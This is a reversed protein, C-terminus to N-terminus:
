KLLALLSEKQDEPISLIQFAEHVDIGKDQIMKIQEVIEKAREPIYNIEREIKKYILSSKCIFIPYITKQYPSIQTSLGACIKPRKDSDMNDKYSYFLLPSIFLSDSEETNEVNKSLAIREQQSLENGSMVNIMRLNQYTYDGDRSDEMRQIQQIESPSLGRREFHGNWCDMRIKIGKRAVAEEVKIYPFRTRKAIKLPSKTNNSTPLFYQIAAFAVDFLLDEKIKSEDFYDEILVRIIYLFLILNTKMTALSSYVSIAPPDVSNYQYKANLIDPVGAYSDFWKPAVYSSDGERFRERLNWGALIAEKRREFEEQSPCFNGLHGMYNTIAGSLTYVNNGTRDDGEGYTYVARTRRYRTNKSSVVEAKVNTVYLSSNPSSIYIDELNKLAMSALEDNSRERTKLSPLDILHRILLIGVQSGLFEKLLWDEDTETIKTPLYNRTKMIAAITSEAGFIESFSTNDGFDLARRLIQDTLHAEPISLLSFFNEIAKRKESSPYAGREEQVINRVYLDEGDVSFLGKGLGHDSDGLIPKM